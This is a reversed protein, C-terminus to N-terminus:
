HHKKKEQNRKFQCDPCLWSAGKPKKTLNVCQYHFWEIACDENDCAIMEGHAIQRCICYVPENPDIADPEEEGVTESELRASKRRSEVGSSAYRKGIEALLRSDGNNQMAKELIKIETDLHRINHDILDYSVVALHAKKDCLSESLNRMAEVDNLKRKTTTRREKCEEVEADIAKHINVSLDDLKQMVNLTRSTIAPLEARIRFAKDVYSVM